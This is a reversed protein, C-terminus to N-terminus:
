AVKEENKLYNIYEKILSITRDKGYKEMNIVRFRDTFGYFIDVLDSM